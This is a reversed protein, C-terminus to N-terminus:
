ETQTTKGMSAWLTQGSTWPISGLRRWLPSFARRWPNVFNRPSLASFLQNRTEPGTQARRLEDSSAEEGRRGWPGQTKGAAVSDVGLGAGGVSPRFSPRVSSFIPRSLVFFRRYRRLSGSDSSAVVGDEVVAQPGVVGVAEVAAGAARVVGQRGHSQSCGRWGSLPGVILFIPRYFQSFQLEERLGPQRLDDVDDPQGSSARM